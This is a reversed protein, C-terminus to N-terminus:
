CYSTNFLLTESYTWGGNDKEKNYCLLLLVIIRFLCQISDEPSFGGGVSNESSSIMKESRTTTPPTYEALRM